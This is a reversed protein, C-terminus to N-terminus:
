GFHEGRASPSCSPRPVGHYTDVSVQIRNLLDFDVAHPDRFVSALSSFTVSHVVPSYRRNRFVSINLVNTSSDLM